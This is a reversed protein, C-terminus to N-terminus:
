PYASYGSGRLPFSSSRPLLKRAKASNGLAFFTLCVILGKGGYTPFTLIEFKITPIEFKFM